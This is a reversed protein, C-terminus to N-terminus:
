ALSTTAHRRLRNLRAMDTATPPMACPRRVRWAQWQKYPSNVTTPTDMRLTGRHVRRPRSPATAGSLKLQNRRPTSVEGMSDAHEGRLHSVYIFHLFRNRRRLALAGMM